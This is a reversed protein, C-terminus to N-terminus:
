YREDFYEQGNIFTRRLQGSFRLTCVLHSLFYAAKVSTADVEFSQEDYEMPQGTLPNEGPERVVKVSYTKVIPEM